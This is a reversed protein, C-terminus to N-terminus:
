TKLDSREPLWLPSREGTLSNRKLVKPHCMEPQLHLVVNRLREALEPELADVLRARRLVADFVVELTQEDLERESFPPPSKM